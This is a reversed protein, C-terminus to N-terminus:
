KKEETGSVRTAVSDLTGIGAVTAFYAALTNWLFSMDPVYHGLLVFIMAGTVQWFRLSNLVGGIKEMMTVEAM